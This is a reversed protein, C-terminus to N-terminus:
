RAGAKTLLEVVKANGGIGAYTHLNGAPGTRNPDAGHKLLLATMAPDGQMAALMLPTMGNSDPRDVWMGAQLAEAAGARDRAMVATMIDNYKPNIVPPGPSQASFSRAPAAAIAIGIMVM